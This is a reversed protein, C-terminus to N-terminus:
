SNYVCINAIYLRYKLKVICVYVFINKEKGDKKKEVIATLTMKRRSYSVSPLVCSDRIDAHM